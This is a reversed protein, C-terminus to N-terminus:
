KRLTALVCRFGIADTMGDAPHHGRYASRAADPGDNWSGSRIVKHREKDTGSIVPSGDNPAKEYNPMWDDSVWEWNYGHMDFLGWPNAKKMGVPPDNGPANKKYWGFTTLKEVDDGFSYATTTGARCAYEWEAESPLRIAETEAILKRQRLEKTAKRCFEEAQPYTVLEMSNRPGKWKAPNNGMVIQYLEQTVEYKAMAFSYDFRVERVPSEAPSGKSGMMFGAPYPAKGPTIKLFEDAFRKLIEEKRPVPDFDKQAHSEMPFLSGAFLALLVYKM